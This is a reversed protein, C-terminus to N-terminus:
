VYTCEQRQLNPPLPQIRLRPSLLFRERFRDRSPDPDGEDFSYLSTSYDSAGICTRCVSLGMQSPHFLDHFLETRAAPDLRNFTYCAADTFAVGFGLVPQFKKEADVVIADSSPQGSAPQWM